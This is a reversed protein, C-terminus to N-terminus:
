KIKQIPGIDPARITFLQRNKRDFLDEQYGNPHCAEQIGLHFLKQPENFDQLIM